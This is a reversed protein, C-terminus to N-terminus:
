YGPPYGGPAYSEPSQQPGGHAPDRALLTLLVILVAGGALWEPLTGLVFQAGVVAAGAVIGVLLVVKDKNTFLAIIFALAGLELHNTNVAITGLILLLLFTFDIM